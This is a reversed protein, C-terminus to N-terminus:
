KSKPSQQLTNIIQGAKKAYPGKIDISNSTQGAYKAMVSMRQGLMVDVLRKRCLEKYKEATGGFGKPPCFPDDVNVGPTTNVVNMNLIGM